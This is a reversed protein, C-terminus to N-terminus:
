EPIEMWEDPPHVIRNDLASFWRQWGAGVEYRMIRYRPEDDKYNHHPNDNYRGLVNDSHWWTNDILGVTKAVAPKKKKANNWM